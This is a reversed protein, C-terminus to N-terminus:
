AKRLDEALSQFRQRLSDTARNVEGSQRTVDEVSGTTTDATESVRSIAKDLEAAAGNAHSINETIDRTAETQQGVAHAVDEAAKEIAEFRDSVTGMADVAVKGTEQLRAVQAEIEATAKGTQSALSKVESAVVAFGKGADGARAAEITANLALLNTQEAIDRILDVVRSIEMAGDSLGSVRERAAGLGEGSEKIAQSTDNLRSTIEEFATALEEAASAITQLNQSSQKSSGEASEATEAANRAMHDLGDATDELSHALRALAKFDEESATQFHQVIAEVKEARRAREETEARERELKAGEERRRAEEARREQELREEQEKQRAQQTERNELAATRFSEFTRMLGGITDRRQSAPVPTDIDGHAIRDAIGSVRHISRRISLLSALMVVGLAAAMLVTMGIMSLKIFSVTAEVPAEFASSNQRFARDARDLRDLLAAREMSGRDYAKLAAEAKDAADIDDRCIDLAHATGIMKMVLVDLFNVTNLCGEPQARVLALTRTLGAPSRSQDAKLTALDRSFEYSYKYHKYNLYHFKAGKALEFQGFIAVVALVAVLALNLRIRYGISRNDFRRILPSLFRAPDLKPPSNDM